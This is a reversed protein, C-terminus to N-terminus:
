AIHEINLIKMLWKTLSLMIKRPYTPQVFNNFIERINPKQNFAFKYDNLKSLPIWQIDSTEGPENYQNSLPYDDTTGNLVVYFQCNMNQKGKDPQTHLKWFELQDQMVKVGTEELTERCAATRIDENHDLYGCPVNWLGVCSPAKPGRQNALICWIGDANKCFVYCVSTMSRSYWYKKGEYEFEFNEM